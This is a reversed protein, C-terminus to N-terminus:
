DNKREEPTPRRSIEYIERALWEAFGPDLQDILEGKVTIGDPWAVVGCEILVRADHTQLPDAPKAPAKYGAAEAARNGDQAAAYSEAAAMAAPGGMTALLKGAREMNIEQARQLEKWGLARITIVKGGSDPIQLTKKRASAFPTWTATDSM